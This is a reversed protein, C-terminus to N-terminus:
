LDALLSEVREWVLRTAAEDYEKPLSRDTFLHGGGPYQHLTFPAGAATVEREFAALEDQQRFPDDVMYHVQVPVSAPWGGAIAAGEVQAYVATPMGAAFLVLGRAGPRTAALYEASAGGNSFGAYVVEDPLSRAAQRTREMLEPYGIGEVYQMAPEYEDFTLRNGYLDPVHVAHGMAELRSAADLVGQRIGLVSHFLVIEAM